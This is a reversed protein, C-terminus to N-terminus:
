NETGNDCKRQRSGREGLRANDLRSVALRKYSVSAIVSIMPTTIAKPATAAYNPIDSYANRKISSVVAARGIVAAVRIVAPVGVVAAGIIAPIRLTGGAIGLGLSVPAVIIARTIRGVIVPAAIATGA